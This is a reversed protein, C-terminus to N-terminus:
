SVLGRFLSLCKELHKECSFEDVFRSRAELGLAQRKSHDAILSMIEVSLSQSNLNDVQMIVASEDGLIHRIEGVDSTIIACGAASAELLVIPQAELRSPLVFLHSDRFLQYKEDGDVHQLWKIDCNGDTNIQDILCNVRANVEDINRFKKSHAVMDPAGCLLASFSLGKKGTLALAELYEEFGKGEVLHSLFLIKPRETNPSHKITIEEPTSVPSESTNEIIKIKEAPIGLRLLHESQKAGLIVIYSAHKVACRLIHAHVSDYSWETFWNGHLAIIANQTSRTAMVGIFPVCDRMLATLTQGINAHIVMKPNLVLAFYRIWCCILSILFFFLSLPNLMGSRHFIPMRIHSTSWGKELFAKELLESARQQGSRGESYAYTFCAKGEKETTGINHMNM